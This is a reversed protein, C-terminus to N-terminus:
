SPSVEIAISSTIGHLFVTLFARVEEICSFRKPFNPRYKMTRFQAESYPNDNSTYPRSVSKHLVLRSHLEVVTRSMMALGNDSHICLSGPQVDQRRCCEEILAEALLASEREAVLWGVVYRSYIDLMVYLQFYQFKRTGLLKSIDWSWVENPRRALLQPATYPSHRRHARREKVAKNAHLIRYMTSTLCKYVREDLLAAYVAAPSWDIFRESTLTDLVSQREQTTLARPHLTAIENRVAPHRLRFETARSVGMSACAAAIALSPSMQQAAAM